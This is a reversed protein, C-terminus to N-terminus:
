LSDVSRQRQFGECSSRVASPRSGGSPMRVLQPFQHLAVIDRFICLHCANLKSCQFWNMSDNLAACAALLRCLSFAVAVSLVRPCSGFWVCEASYGCVAVAPLDEGSACVASPVPWFGAFVSFCGSASRAKEAQRGGSRLAVLASPPFYCLDCCLFLRFM